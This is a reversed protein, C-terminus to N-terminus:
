ATKGLRQTASLTSPTESNKPRSTLTRSPTPIEVGMEDFRRKIRRLLERKVKARRLPHTKVVFKLTVAYEGFRDVGLMDPADLMMPGYEPDERLEKAVNLLVDMLEDLDEGYSVNVEIVARSWGHTTNSVVNISGHPIFHVVGELDRLLTVRLTIKEVTGSIDGIKVVDNIGYQDEMLVMFGSFYDRILNQAGFAVALGFVAAGGMLPMIPIGVEDLMMLIGGGVIILSATNRFVSVLTLARNEREHQTGRAGGRAMVQAIQRGVLKMMGNLLMTAVFIVFLKPGHDLGWQMLNHLAFPNELAAVKEQAEDAAAHTEQAERLADLQEAQLTDLEARMEDLNDQVERSETRARTLREGAEAVREMLTAAAAPDDTLTQQLQKELQQRDTDARNAKTRALELLEQEVEITKRLAELRETVSEANEQAEKAAAQKEQAEKQAEALRENEEEDEASLPHQDAPEAEKSAEAAPKAPEPKTEPHAAHAPSNPAAHPAAHSEEAPPEDETGNLRKLAEIDRQHKKALNAYKERLAKREQIALDFRDKADKWEEEMAAIEAEVAAAQKIKGTERLQEAKEKKEERQADLQQFEQETQHYESNPDDEEQKLSALEKEDSEIARQLKAIQEAESRKEDKSLAVLQFKVNGQTPRRVSELPSTAASPEAPAGPTVQATLQCALVLLMSSLM